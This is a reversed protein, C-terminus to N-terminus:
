LSNTHGGVLIFLLLHGSHTSDTQVCGLVCTGQNLQFTLICVILTNGPKAMLLICWWEMLRIIHNIGHWTSLLRQHCSYGRCDLHSQSTDLNKIHWSLRGEVLELNTIPIGVHWASLWSLMKLTTYCASTIARTLKKTDSVVLLNINERLHLLTSTIFLEALSPDFWM